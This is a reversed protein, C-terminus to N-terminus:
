AALLGTMHGINKCFIRFHAMPDTISLRKNM